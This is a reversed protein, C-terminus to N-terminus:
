RKKGRERERKREKRTLGTAKGDSYEGLLLHVLSVKGNAVREMVREVGADFGFLEDTPGLVRNLEDCYVDIALQM